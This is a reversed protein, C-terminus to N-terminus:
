PSTTRFIPLNLPLEDTALPVKGRRPKEGTEVLAGEKLPSDRLSQPLGALACEIGNTGTDSEEVADFVTTCAWLEKWRLRDGM